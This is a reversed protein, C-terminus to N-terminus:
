SRPNEHSLVSGSSPEVGEDEEGLVGNQETKLLAEVTNKFIGEGDLMIVENAREAEEDDILFLEDIKIECENVLGSILDTTFFPHELVKHIFPLRRLGGTRKDYKKVIKALGTYNINSYNVLRVMEGHFDVMDKRLNTMENKYYTESTQSGNPGWLDVIEKVRQLLEKHRIVFEEEKDIFFDNFKDIENNLLHLFQAEAEEVELSGNVARM